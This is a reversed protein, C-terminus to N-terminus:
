GILPTCSYPQLLNYPELLVVMCGLMMNNCLLYLVLLELQLM